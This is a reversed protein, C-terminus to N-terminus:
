AAARAPRLLALVEAATRALVGRSSHVPGAGLGIAEDLGRQDRMTALVPLGTVRSVGAGDLGAGRVVHAAQRAGLRDVLRAAAAVGGLTPVTVVVMQDCRAVVEEVMPDVQRPLDVVVVDFGRRAASLAERVAFVPVPEARTPGWTLVGLGRRAPVAERLSRASLRGTTQQLADWRIGDHTELGLVRDVGPGCPDLDVVLSAGSRTATEGLACAFTTAGAGGSGGIVGITLAPQRAGEGVDTLLEVLWSESHPLQVVHEAGVGLAIRFMRDAVDGPVVVHVGERRPPAAGA